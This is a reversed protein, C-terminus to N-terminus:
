KVRFCRRDKGHSAVIFCQMPECHRGAQLQCVSGLASCNSYGLVVCFSYLLTFIYRFSPMVIIQKMVVHMLSCSAPINSKPFCHPGHRTGRCQHVARVACASNAGHQVGRDAEYLFAKWDSQAQRSVGLGAARVQAAIWWSLCSGRGAPTDPALKNVADCGISKVVEYNGVVEPPSM